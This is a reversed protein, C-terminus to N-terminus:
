QFLHLITGVNIYACVLNGYVKFEKLVLVYIFSHIFIVYICYSDWAKKKLRLLYFSGSTEPILGMNNTYNLLCESHFLCWWMARFVQKHKTLPKNMIVKRKFIM